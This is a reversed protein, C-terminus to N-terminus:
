FGSWGSFIKITVDSPALEQAAHLAATNYSSKRLSGSLGLVRLTKGDSM